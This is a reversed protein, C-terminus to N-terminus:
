AFPRRRVPMAYSWVRLPLLGYPSSMVSRQRSAELTACGRASVYQEHLYRYSISKSATEKWNSAKYSVGTFGLNPNVYTFLMRVDPFNTSVWRAVGGLLHSIANRPAGEFAYLRSLILGKSDSELEDLLRQLHGVDLASLTAMAVPLPFSRSAGRDFLGFHIGERFSGIYHFREHIIRAIATEVEGFSVDDRKLDGYAIKPLPCIARASEMGAAVRNVEGTIIEPTLEEQQFRPLQLQASVLLDRESIKHDSASKAVAIRTQDGIHSWIAKWTRFGVEDAYPCAFDTRSKM